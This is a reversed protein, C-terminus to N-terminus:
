SSRLISFCNTLRLVRDEASNDPDITLGSVDEISVENRQSEKSRILMPIRLVKVATLYIEVHGVSLTCPTIMMLGM